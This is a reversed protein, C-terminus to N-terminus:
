LDVRRQIEPLKETPKYTTDYFGIGEKTVYGGTVLASLLVDIREEPLNGTFKESWLGHADNYMLGEGSARNIAWVLFDADMGEYTIM